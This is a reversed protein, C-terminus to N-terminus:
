PTPTPVPVFSNTTMDYLMPHEADNFLLRNEPLWTLRYTDEVEVIRKPEADGIQFLYYDFKYSPVGDPANYTTNDIVFVVKKSDPSWSFGGDLWKDKLDIREIKGTKLTYIAFIHYNERYILYKDNPSFAFSYGATLDSPDPALTTTVKGSTLDLRYLAASIRFYNFYTSQPVDLCCFSPIFYAFQGDKSWHFLNMTGDQFGHFRGYTEYFPVEWSATGDLRFIKTNTARTQSPNLECVFAAWQGNPSLSETETSEGINCATISTADLTQKASVTADPLVTPTPLKTSTPIPPFVTTATAQPTETETPANSPLPTTSLRTPVATPTAQVGCSVLWFLLCVIFFNRETLGSINKM